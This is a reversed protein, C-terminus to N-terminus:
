PKSYYFPTSINLIFASICNGRNRHYWFSKFKVNAHANGHM